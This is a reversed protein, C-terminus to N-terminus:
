IIKYYIYNFFFFISVKKIWKKVDPLEENYEESLERLIDPWMAMLENREDKFSNVYEQVNNSRFCLFKIILDNRYNLCNITM